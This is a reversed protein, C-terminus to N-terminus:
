RAISCGHWAAPQIHPVTRRLTTAPIRVPRRPTVREGDNAPHAGIDSAGRFLTPLRCTPLKNWATAIDLRLQGWDDARRHPYGIDTEFRSPGETRRLWARASDTFAAVSLNGYPSFYVPHRFETTMFALQRGMVDTTIIGNTYLTHARLMTGRNQSSSAIPWIALPAGAGAHWDRTRFPELRGYAPNNAM